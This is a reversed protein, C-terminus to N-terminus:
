WWHVLKFVLMKEVQPISFCEKSFLLFSYKMANLRPKFVNVEKNISTLSSLDSAPPTDFVQSCLENKVGFRTCKPSTRTPTSTISKNPGNLFQCFIICHYLFHHGIFFGLIFSSNFNFFEFYVQTPSFPLGKLDNRSHTQINNVFVPTSSTCNMQNGGFPTYFHPKKMSPPTEYDVMTQKRKLISPHWGLPSENINLSKLHALKSPSRIMAM